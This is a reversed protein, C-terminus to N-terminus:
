DIMTAAPYSKRCVPTAPWTPPPPSAPIPNPPSMAIALLEVIAKMPAPVTALAFFCTQMITNMRGGLGSESAIKYADVVYVKLRKDIIQRQAEDPLEDWTREADFPSNLLFTAEDEAIDLVDM